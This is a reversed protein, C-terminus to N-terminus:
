PATIRGFSYMSVVVIVSFIAVNVRGWNSRLHKTFPRFNVAIHAGAGIVFAWSFWEHAFSLYGPVIDFFMLVGTISMLIFSGITLPTSWTRMTFPKATKM